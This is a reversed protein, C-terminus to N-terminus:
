GHLGKRNYTAYLEGGLAAELLFYLTQSGNFCEFLKIIFFSNTMMLINKENLISQQMGMKVIYGKSICKMAYTEKTDRHEWLEVSAFGGCGLLGLRVLD